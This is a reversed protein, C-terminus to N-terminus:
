AGKQKATWLEEQHREFDAMTPGIGRINLRQEPQMTIKIPTKQTPERPETWSQTPTALSEGKAESEATVLSEILEFPIPTEDAGPALSDYIAELVREGPSILEEKKGRTRVGQSRLWRMFEGQKMNRWRGLPNKVHFRGPSADFFGRVGEQYRLSLPRPAPMTMMSPTRPPTKKAAARQRKEEPSLTM